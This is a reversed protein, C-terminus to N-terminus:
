QCKGNEKGPPVQGETGPKTRGGAGHARNHQCPAGPSDALDTLKGQLYLTLAEEVTTNGAQKREIGASSLIERPHPDMRGTVVVQVDLGQIRRAVALGAGHGGGTPPDNKM